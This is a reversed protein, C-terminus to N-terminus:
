FHKNPNKKLNIVQLTKLDGSDSLQQKDDMIKAICLPLNDSPLINQKLFDLKVNNHTNFVQLFFM